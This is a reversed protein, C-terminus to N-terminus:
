SYTYSLVPGYILGCGKLNMICDIMKVSSLTYDYSNLTNNFLHLTSFYM